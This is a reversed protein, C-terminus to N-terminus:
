ISLKREIANVRKDLSELSLEKSRASTIEQTATTANVAKGKVRKTWKAIEAADGTVKILPEGKVIVGTEFRLDAGELDQDKHRIMGKGTKDRPVRIYVTAM